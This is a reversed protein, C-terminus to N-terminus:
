TLTLMVVNEMNLTTPNVGGTLRFMSIELTNNNM